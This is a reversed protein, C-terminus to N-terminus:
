KKGISKYYLTELKDITPLKFIKLENDNTNEVSSSLDRLLYDEGESTLAVLHENQYKEFVFAVSKNYIIRVGDIMPFQFIRLESGFKMLSKRTRLLIRYEGYTDPSNSRWTNKDFIYTVSKRYMRKLYEISTKRFIKLEKKEKM